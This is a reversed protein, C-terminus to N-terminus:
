SKRKDLTKAMHWISENGLKFERAMFIGNYTIFSRISRYTKFAAEPYQWSLFFGVCWMFHREEECLLSAGMPKGNRLLELKEMIVGFFPIRKISDLSEEDIAAGHCLLELAFTINRCCVALRLPRFGDNGVHTLDVGNQILVNVLGVHGEQAAWHIGSYGMESCTANVFAGNQLLVKVVDVHGKYCARRLATDDSEDILNM